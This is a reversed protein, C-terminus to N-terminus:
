WHILGLGYGDQERNEIFTQTKFKGALSSWFEPVEGTWSGSDIGFRTKFDPVIDHIVITGGTSVLPSYNAFDATVGRLSHDGDIFLCDLANTGLASKMRAVTQTAASDGRISVVRQQGWGIGKNIQSRVLSHGLDITIILADHSCVRTLLFLTGGLGSGVECLFKPPEKALLELLPILESRKQDTRSNPFQRMEDFLQRLDHRRDAIRKLAALETRLQRYEKVRQVIAPAMWRPFDDPGFGIRRQNLLSPNINLTTM